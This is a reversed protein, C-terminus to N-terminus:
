RDEAMSMLTGTRQLCRSVGATGQNGPLIELTPSLVSCNKALHSVSLHHPPAFPLLHLFSHPGGGLEGTGLLQGGHYLEPLGWSITDGLEWTVEAPSRAAGLGRSEGM